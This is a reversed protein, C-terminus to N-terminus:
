SAVANEPNALPAVVFLPVLVPVNEPAKVPKVVPYTEPEDTVAILVVTPVAPVKGSTTAFRMEVEVKVKAVVRGSPIVKPPAAPRM